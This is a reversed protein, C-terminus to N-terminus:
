DSCVVCAGLLGPGNTVGCVVRCLEGDTIDWTFGESLGARLTPTSGFTTGVTAM